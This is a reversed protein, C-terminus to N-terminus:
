RLIAQEIAEGLERWDDIRLHRNSRPALPRLRPDAVHQFTATAPSHEAVSDLQPILDDIFASRGGIQAALEASRPGKPGDNLLLPYDLGHRRLWGARLVEAQPPANSMVVISARRSLRELAAAAGPAPEMDDCRGGFYRDFCAKAEAGTVPQRGGPRFMNEFLAYSKLRVEIGEDRLFAVFGQLFLGLVEDVDVIVLPRGPDLALRVLRPEATTPVQRLADTL